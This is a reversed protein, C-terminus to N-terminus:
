KNQLIRRIKQVEKFFKPDSRLSSDRKNPLSIAVINIVTGPAESLVIVKNSLFVAEEINHTVYIITSKTSDKIRLLEENLKEKIMEDLSAMPEDMLLIKPDHSLARAIAVKQQMGGSLQNPYYNSYKQLKFLSILEDARKHNKINLVELPLMINKRVTRFPLLSLSQPIYGILCKQLAHSIDDDQYRINGSNPKILGCIIKLITTKGCGSPGVIAVVDRKNVSFSVNKLVEVFRGKKTYSININKIDILPVNM